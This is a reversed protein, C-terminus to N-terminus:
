PLTWPINEPPPPPAVFCLTTWQHWSEYDDDTFGLDIWKRGPIGGGIDGIVAFGYGPVYVKQGGMYAYWARTVAIIGKRLTAGSFTKDSCHDVGLRCPSYSTAYVQLVRWCTVPGDPTQLTQLEIKTGYGVIRPKPPVAIWSAEVTRSVEAGNEYRVRVRQVQLGYEGEQAVKVTDLPEDPLPETKSEFAVPLQRLVLGEWVHHLTVARSEPFAATDAPATTELGQPALNAEALAEGITPAASYLTYTAQGMQAQFPEARRLDAEEQVSPADLLSPSFRDAAHLTVGQAWLTEAWTPADTTLTLPVGDVVVRTEVFSRAQVVPPVAQSPLPRDCQWVVGDVQCGTSDDFAVGAAKLAAAPTAAEQVWVVQRPTVVWVGTSAATPMPEAARAFVPFGLLLVAGCLWGFLQKGMGQM